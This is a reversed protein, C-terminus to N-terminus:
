VTASVTSILQESRTFSDTIDRISRRVGEATDVAQNGHDVSAQVIEAIDNALKGTTEALRRVEEAVVAFGAGAAGGRAAEIAANLAVMNTKNAIAAITDTIKSVDRGSEAIRFVIDMMRGVADMAGQVLAAGRQTERNAQQAGDVVGAIAAVNEALSTSVRRTATSQESAGEAVHVIAAASQAAAIAVQGANATVRDTLDRAAAIQSRFTEVARAMAGIEDTRGVAGHVDVDPTDAPRREALARMAATLGHVPRVIRRTVYTLAIALGALSGVVTLWLLMQKRSEFFADGGARVAAVLSGTQRHIAEVAANLRMREARNTDNDGRTRAGELDGAQAMRALERRFAIFARVQGVVADVAERNEDLGMGRLQEAEVALRDLNQVMPEAFRLAVARESSMYIGRSDMVIAYILTDVRQIQGELAFTHELAAIKSRYNQMAQVGLLGVVLTFCSVLVVILGIRLGTGGPLRSSARDVRGLEVKM